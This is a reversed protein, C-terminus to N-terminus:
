IINLDELEVCWTCVGTPQKSVVVKGKNWNHIPQKDERIYVECGQKTIAKKM